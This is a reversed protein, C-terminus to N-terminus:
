PLVVLALTRPDISPYCYCTSVMLAPPSLYLNQGGDIFRLDLIDDKWIVCGTRYGVGRIDVAAYALCSCDAFCRHRCEELEVEMDVSANQTDPLKVGPVVKFGDTTKGGACDLPADRRCGGASDKVEQSSPTAHVPSFGEVCGCFASSVAGADCLGFPGCRAYTDCTDRQGKFYSRWEGTGVDWVLREAAGTHNVVVRTLFADPAATYGYTMESPSTTVWLPYKHAFWSREPVGNFTLGNWPGTRFKKVDRHWVVLEPLGATELTRRYDGPSPDDASRWATLHWDGGTWLNKGLKMDPLMTDSPHDFSQWLSTDRSGNRVVLNGSELLQVVAAPAALFNSSWARRRSGDLLVLSDVDDFILMGTRDGLPQDRNAVWYVTDNSVSFWIGLYRKTSVGPSFFGLTYSGGAPVLTKGDTLNQVRELKVAFGAAASTQVSLFFSLLLLLLIIHALLQSTAM